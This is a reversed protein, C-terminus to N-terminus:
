PSLVQASPRSLVLGPLLLLLLGTNLVANQWFGSLLSFSTDLVYWAAVSGAVAQWSGPVGRALQTRVVWLLLLFWGVISAGMVAHALRVYDLAEPAFSPPFGQRGYVMLGFLSQTLGPLLVLVLGFLVTVVVTATLLRVGRDHTPTM